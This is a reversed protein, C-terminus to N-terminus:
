KMREIFKIIPYKRNFYKVDLKIYRVIDEFTINSFRVIPEEFFLSTGDETMPHPRKNYPLGPYDDTDRLREYIRM